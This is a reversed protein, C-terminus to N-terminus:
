ERKSSGYGCLSPGEHQHYFFFAIARGMSFHYDKKLPVASLFSEINKSL